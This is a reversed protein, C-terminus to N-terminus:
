CVYRMVKGIDIHQSNVNIERCALEFRRKNVNIGRLYGYDLSEKYREYTGFVQFIYHIPNGTCNLNYFSEPLNNLNILENNHCQFVGKIHKPSGELSTLQNGACNYHRGIEKPGGKLGNRWLRNNECNFSGDVKEPGDKLWVLKNDSCDLDGKIHKQIGKLSLLKNHGCFFSEGVKKPCYDLSELKNGTCAFLGGVEDPCGKLTTLQNWGCNFCGSVRGFKIPIRKLSKMRINVDTDVDVSGDDNVTFHYIGLKLCHYYVKFYKFFKRM